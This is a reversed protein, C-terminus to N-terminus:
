WRSSKLISAAEACDFISELTKEKQFATVESPLVKELFTQLGGMEGGEGERWPRLQLNVPLYLFYSQRHNRSSVGVLTVAQLIVRPFHLWPLAASVTLICLRELGYANERHGVGRAGELRM